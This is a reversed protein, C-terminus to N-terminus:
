STRMKKYIKYRGSSAQQKYNDNIWDDLIHVGSSVSSLNDENYNPQEALVIWTVKKSILESIIQRQVPVTTAYSPELQHYFTASPRDALYYFGIDNGCILDHRSNGVYIPEHKKTHNVIYNVAQEQDKSIFVGGTKKLESHSILPSYKKVNNITKLVPYSFYIVLFTVMIWVAKAQSGRSPLGKYASSLIYALLVFAILSTPLRHMFDPRSFAQLMLLIGFIFLATVEYNRSIYFGSEKIFSRIIFILAVAYLILPFVLLLSYYILRIVNRLMEIGLIPADHIEYITPKLSSFYPYHRFAQMSTAPFVILQEWMADFGAEYIFYGYFPMAVLLVGACYLLVTREIGLINSISAGQKRSLLVYMLITISSAIVVYGGFDHRITAAMGALIGSLFLMGKQGKNLYQMLCLLALMCFVLSPFVAHTYFPDVTLLLTSSIAAVLALSTKFLRKALLYVLFIIILRCIIDYLRATILNDGFIDFLLAVTYFQGPAYNTFFDKYPLEGEM